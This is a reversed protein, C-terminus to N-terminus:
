DIIVLYGGNDDDEELCIFQPLSSSDNLLHYNHLDQIGSRYDHWADYFEKDLGEFLKAVTEQLLPRRYFEDVMTLVQMVTMPAELEITETNDGFTPLYFKCSKQFVVTEFQETTLIQRTDRMRANEIADHYFFWQTNNLINM